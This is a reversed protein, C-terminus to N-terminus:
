AWLVIPKLGKRKVYTIALIAGGLWTSLIPLSIPLAPYWSQNHSEDGTEFGPLPPVVYTGCCAAVAFTHLAPSEEIVSERTRADKIQGAWDQIDQFSLGEPTAVEGDSTRYHAHRRTDVIELDLKEGAPTLLRVHVDARAMSPWRQSSLDQVRIQSVGTGAVQISWQPNASHTAAFSLHDRYTRLCVGILCAIVPISLEVFLLTV